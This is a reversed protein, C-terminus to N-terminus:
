PKNFTDISSKKLSFINIGENGSCCFIASKRDAISLLISLTFSCISCVCAKLFAMNCCINTHSKSLSLTVNRLSTMSLEDFYFLSVGKSLSLTVNRISTMSLGDFYFLSVGKSLSLTVNRISTMSLGDFYFLSVSKSLSLTVNLPEPHCGKFVDHQAQRFLPHHLLSYNNYKFLM